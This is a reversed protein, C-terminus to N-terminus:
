TLSHFFCFCIRVDCGGSSSQGLCGAPSGSSGSPQLAATPGLVSDGSPFTPFPPPPPSPPAPPRAPAPPLPPFPPLPPRPPLPPPPGPPPTPPIPRPSPPQPPLPPPPPPPPLPLPLPSPQPPQPPLSPPPAFPPLNSVAGAAATVAGGTAALAGPQGGFTDSGALTLAAGRADVDWGAGMSAAPAGVLNKSFSDGELLVVAGYDAALGAGGLQTLSYPFPFPHPAPPYPRQPDACAHHTAEREAGVGRMRLTVRRAQAYNTHFDDSYALFTAGAGAVAVAAGRGADAFSHGFSCNVATVRPALAIVGDSDSLQYAAWQQSAAAGGLRRQGQVLLAGGNAAGPPAPPASSGGTNGGGSALVATPLDTAADANGGLLALGVLTVEGGAVVMARRSGGGADLSCAPPSSVVACALTLRAGPWAPRVTLPSSLAYKAGGTSSFSAGPLPLHCLTVSLSAPGGPRNFGAPSADLLAFLTASTGDAPTVTSSSPAAGGDGGIEVLLTGPECTSAFPPAPPAPSPAPAPGGTPAAAPGGTPAATPSLPSPLPPPQLPAGRGDAAAPLVGGRSALYRVGAGGHSAPAAAALAACLLGLALPRM